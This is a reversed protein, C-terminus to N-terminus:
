RCGSGIGGPELHNMAQDTFKCVDRLFRAEDGEVGRQNTDGGFYDVYSVSSLPFRWINGAKNSGAPVEQGKEYRDCALHLKHGTSTLNLWVQKGRDLLAVYDSLLHAPVTTRGATSVSARVIVHRLRRAIVRTGSTITKEVIWGIM